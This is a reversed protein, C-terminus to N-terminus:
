SAAKESDATKALRAAIDPRVEAAMSRLQKAIRSFTERKEKDAALKAILECDEGTRCIRRRRGAM